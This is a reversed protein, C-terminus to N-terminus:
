MFLRIAPDFWIEFITAFAVDNPQLPTSKNKTSEPNRIPPM